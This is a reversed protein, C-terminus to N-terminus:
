FHRFYKQRTDTQNIFQVAIDEICLNDMRKKYGSLRGLQVYAYNNVYYSLKKKFADHTNKKKKANETEFCKVHLKSKM